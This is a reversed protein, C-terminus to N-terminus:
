SVWTGFTIINFGVKLKVLDRKRDIELCAGGGGGGMELSADSDVDGDDKTL